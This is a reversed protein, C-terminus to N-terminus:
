EIIWVSEVEVSLNFPLSGMGVASRAGVGREAGFVNRMTESFGNIVAVHQTFEPPCNVMGLTKLLQKCRNLSGLSAKLTALSALAVQKGADYGEQITLGGDAGVKGKIYMDKGDADLTALLPGHGSLIITNGSIMSPKYVGAPKPAAPLKYGLRELAEDPTEFLASTVCMCKAITVVGRIGVPSPVGTDSDVNFVVVNGPDKLKANFQNSVLLMTSDHATATDFSWPLRGESPVAASMNLKGTDNLTFVGVSDHGRNSIYVHRGTASIEAAHSPAEYFDFPKKGRDDDWGSWGEPLSSISDELVALAGTEHDLVFSTITNDLENSAFGHDGSFAIHRPGAGAHVEVEGNPILKGADEDLKYCVIANRGLDPVFVDHFYPAVQHPHGALQRGRAAAGKAHKHVDTAEGLSGDAKIPLVVVTGGDEDGGYNAVLLCAHGSRAGAVAVHCPAEGGSSVSNLKTLTGTAAAVRWAIVAGKSPTMDVSYITSAQPYAAIFMPNTGAAVPGDCHTLAGDDSLSYVMLANGADGGLWAMPDDPDRDAGTGAFVLSPM